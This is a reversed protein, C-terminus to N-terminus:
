SDAFCFIMAELRSVILQDLHIVPARYGGERVMFMALFVQVEVGPAGLIPPVDYGKWKCFVYVAKHLCLVLFIIALLYFMHGRMLKSTETEDSFFDDFFEGANQSRLRRRSGM